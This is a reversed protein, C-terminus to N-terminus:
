HHELKHIQLLRFQHKMYEKCNIGLHSVPHGLVAYRGVALPGGTVVLRPDGATDDLDSM